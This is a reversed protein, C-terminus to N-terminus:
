RGVEVQQTTQSSHEKHSFENLYRFFLELMFESAPKEHKLGHFLVRELTNLLFAASNKRISTLTLHQGYGHPRASAFTPEAYALFKLRHWGFMDVQQAVHQTLRWQPSFAQSVAVRKVWLKGASSLGYEAHTSGDDERAVNYIRVLGRFALADVANQIAVDFPGHLYTSHGNQLPMLHYVYRVADQLYIFKQLRIRNLRQGYNGAVALAFGVDQMRLLVDSRKSIPM